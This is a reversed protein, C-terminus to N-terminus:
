WSLHFIHPTGLLNLTSINQEEQHVHNAFQPELLYGLLLLDMIHFIKTSIVHQAIHKKFNYGKFFLHIVVIFNGLDFQYM